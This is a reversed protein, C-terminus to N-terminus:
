KEVRSMLVVTEVHRSYVIIIDYTAPPEKAAPYTRSPTM